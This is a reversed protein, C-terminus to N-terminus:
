EAAKGAAAQTEAAKHPPVFCRRCRPEYSETDGILFVPGLEAPKGNVIRQTFSAHSDGCVACYATLRVIEDAIAMLSGMSGFPQGRYDMNLGDCIIQKGRYALEQVLQVIQGSFFQAEDFAVVDVQESDATIREMWATTLERPISAAPLSYGIRSVIQETGFRNDEAPKYAQVTKRGFQQLKQCRKILEGSKESFMPGTIVTIIGREM